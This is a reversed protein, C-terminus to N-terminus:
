RRLMRIVAGALVAGILLPIWILVAGVLALLLLAVLVGLILFILAIGVPGLPGVYIRHSAYIRDRPWEFSRARGPPIIEPEVAPRRPRDIDESMSRDGSKGDV